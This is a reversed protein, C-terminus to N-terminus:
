WARSPPGTLQTVTCVMVCSLTGEEVGGCDIFRQGGARLISWGFSHLDVFWTSTEVVAGAVVGHSTFEYM